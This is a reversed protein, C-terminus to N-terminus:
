DEDCQAMEKANDLDYGMCNVLFEIYEEPYEDCYNCEDYCDDGFASFIGFVECGCDHYCLKFEIDPFMAALAKIVPIPPSWATRFFIATENNFNLDPDEEVNWKTGWNEVMWDYAEEGEEPKNFPCPVIKDFDLGTAMFEVFEPTTHSVNLINECWNPM